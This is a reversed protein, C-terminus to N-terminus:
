HLPLDIENMAKFIDRHQLVIKIGTERSFEQLNHRVESISICHSLDILLIMVYSGDSVTTSLDLININHKVCFSSVTAVFGIQDTGTATLVYTNEPTPSFSAIATEDAKKVVAEIATESHADAEALKREIARQTVSTPFSALLIMTFYGCLVSQRVDAINGSLDSIAKSVEYIIGVHDRSIISIVFHEQPESM